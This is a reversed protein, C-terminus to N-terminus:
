HIFRHVGRHHYYINDDPRFPHTTRLMTNVAVVYVRRAKAFVLAVLTDKHPLMASKRLYSLSAACQAYAQYLRSHFVSVLEGPGQAPFVSASLPLLSTAVTIQQTSQSLVLWTCEWLFEWHRAFSSTSQWPNLRVYGPTSTIDSTLFSTTGMMTSVYAKAYPDACRARFDALEAHPMHVYELLMAFLLAKKSSEASCWTFVMLAYLLASHVRGGFNSFLLSHAENVAQKCAVGSTETCKLLAAHMDPMKDALYALIGQASAIPMRAHMRFEPDTFHSVPLCQMLTAM